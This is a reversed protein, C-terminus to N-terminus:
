IEIVRTATRALFRADHECFLLTPQDRLMAEEIAERADIDLFNLPEDWVRLDAPELISRALEIKRRQGESLTELPQDLVDGRVGLAAMVQRFRVEDLGAGALRSRLPGSLWRPQQCSRSLSLGSARRLTGDHAVPLGCVLDLLSTKGSGNAGVLAIRDGRVVEFSLPDFLPRDRHVVVNSVRVLETRAGTTRDSLRLPYSKEVDVLTARRAEATRLARQESALARKMQRAARAGVFGKDQAGSKEAERRMAGARRFRANAELGTIQRRLLANRARQSELQQLYGERWASFASRQVSVSDPNLALVHDVCDDLFARDHSVILFGSKTALYRAVRARGERDLHNTPEDVLAYRGPQVFLGALLCRTQEGGSLEAYPRQWAREDLALADLERALRADIEYGGAQAYREELEGYRELSAPDGARLLQQMELEWEAYVGAARRAVQYGSLAGDPVAAPFYVTSLDREITGRDPQLAGHLLRLLTTKGRGNRGVLCTRWGTDITLDLDDFLNSDSGDHAFTLGRCIITPM